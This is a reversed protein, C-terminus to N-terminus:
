HALADGSVRGRPVTLRDKNQLSFSLARDTLVCHILSGYVCIKKCTRLAKIGFLAVNCPERRRRSPLRNRPALLEGFLRVAGVVKVFTCNFSPSRPGGAENRNRGMADNDARRTKGSDGATCKHNNALASQFTDLGYPRAIANAETRPSADLFEYSCVRQACVTARGTVRSAASPTVCEDGRCPSRRAIAGHRQANRADLIATTSRGGWHPWQLDTKALIFTLGDAPNRVLIFRSGRETQSWVRSEQRQPFSDKDVCRILFGTRRPQM